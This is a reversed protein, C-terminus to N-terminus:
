KGSAVVVESTIGWSTVETQHDIKWWESLLYESLEVPHCGGVIGPRLRWVRQWGWCVARSLTSTGFTMSVLCLRGRPVLLRHAESLLQDIFDPALLDFVYTSVFRDFSHDPEAIPLSADIQHICARESLPKLREQALSVMTGSIDLGVYHSDAPLYHQLLKAALAGTGCGFEIVSHASYFAAHAILKDFDWSLLKELSQRALNRNVFSLRIDLGVGGNPATVGELKFLANRFVKGEVTPHIQILDDSMATRSQRHLFVVEEILPNGKFALQDLDEAWGLFATDGLIGSLRLHGKKLTFPTSRAAWLQAEPFLTHWAQLRWIHRPTAAVLYRVAGL